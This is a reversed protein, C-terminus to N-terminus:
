QTASSAQHGTSVNRRRREDLVVLWISAEYLAFLPIEEIITTVPDVGPLPSPSCAQPVFRPLALPCRRRYFSHVFM